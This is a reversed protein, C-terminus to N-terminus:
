LLRKSLILQKWVRDIEPHVILIQSHYNEGNNDYRYFPAINNHRNIPHNIISIMNTQIAIFKKFENILFETTEPLFPEGFSNLNSLQLQRRYM